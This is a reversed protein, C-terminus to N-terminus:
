PRRYMQFFTKEDTNKITVTSGSNNYLYMQVEDTATLSLVFDWAVSQTGTGDGRFSYQRVVAFSGVGLPDVHVELRYLGDDVITGGLEATFNCDYYGSDTIVAKDNTTDWESRVDWDATELEIVDTSGTTVTQDGGSKSASM